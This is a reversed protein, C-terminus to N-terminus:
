GFIQELVMAVGDSDNSATHRDAAALVEPHANAVAVGTGAWRLMALDNPMDGFAIVEQSDVGWEACLAALTSAKTVGAATVEFTGTGGSYACEVAPLAATLAAHLSDTMPAPSWAHLKVSAEAVRWLEDLSAVHVRGMSRSSVYGYRPECLLRSGTELSFGADPLLELIVEACRMATAIPLGGVIRVGRADLGDSDLGGSDLGGSDSDGPHAAGREFVVAGNCCVAIGTIGTEAALVDVFRPPRATSIVVRAGADAALRLAAVTRTSVTTDSRLLTGDLDVAVVRIM